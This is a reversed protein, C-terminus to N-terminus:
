LCRFIVPEVNRRLTFPGLQVGTEIRGALVMEDGRVRGTFRASYTPLVEGSRAPGGWDPTHTGQAEFRGDRRPIVPGIRGGACDYELTGGTESLTLGVHTGGWSGTVPVGAAPVGACAALLM